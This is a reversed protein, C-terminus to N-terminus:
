AFNSHSRQPHCVECGDAAGVPGFDARLGVGTEWRLRHWYSSRLAGSLLDLWLQIASSVVMGNLSILSGLRQQHWALRPAFRLTGPPALLEDRAAAQDGLGGVCSVCGARPLLLRVDGTLNIQGDAGRSIDSAVDCHVKLFRSALWAAALRPTDSDVCTFIADVGRALEIVPGFTVNQALSAIACDSRFALLGRQLAAVKSQGVDEEKMDYAADLNELALRDPDVITLSRVGLAVLQHALASGNRGAGILLVRSRAITTFVDEGVAGRERSWRLSESAQSVEDSHLDQPVIRQMGPGVIRLAELPRSEGNVVISGCWGKREKGMGLLLLVFLQTPRPAIRQLWAEPSVYERPDAMALVVWDHLSPRDRGRPVQRGVTLQPVLLEFAGPHPNRECAGVAVNGPEHLLRRCTTEFASRTIVLEYGTRSM